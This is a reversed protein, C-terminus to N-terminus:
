IQFDFLQFHNIFTFKYQHSLMYIEKYKSKSVYSNDELEIEKAFNQNLYQIQHVKSEFQRGSQIFSSNFIKSVSTRYIELYTITLYEKNKAYKM